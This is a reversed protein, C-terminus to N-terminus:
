VYDEIWLAENYLRSQEYERLVKGDDGRVSWTMDYGDEVGIREEDPGYVYAEAMGGAVKERLMGFSDYIYWNAGGDHIYGGAIDYAGVQLRNTNPNVGIVTTAADTTKQKLNGYWDYTYTESHANGSYNLNASVLRGALDYGFTSTGITKINGSGDYSYTGSDWSPPNADPKPQYLISASAEVATGNKREETTWVRAIYKVGPHSRLQEVAPEPLTVLRRTKWSGQLVRRVLTVDPEGAAGNPGRTAYDSKLVIIYRAPGQGAAGAAPVQTTEGFASGALVIVMLAFTAFKM